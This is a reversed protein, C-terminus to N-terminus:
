ARRCGQLRCAHTHKKNERCKKSQSCFIGLLAAVGCRGGSDARPPAACGCGLRAPIYRCFDVCGLMASLSHAVGAEDRQEAHALLVWAEVFPWIARNHYAQAQGAKYPTFVPTGWPSRCLDNMAHEAHEGALGTIVALANALADTRDDPCGDPTRMMCYQNNAKSWFTQEIAEDLADARQQYLAAEDERELETLMRALILNAAYHLVNTGFAYSAGIDAPTMWDPYSQERWDIFSTEGPRLPTHTPMIRDDQALTAQLVPVCYRLWEMDGQAQYLCWAGMAWAVRDTSVPWGGGTGTDQM